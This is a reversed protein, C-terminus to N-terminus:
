LPSDLDAPPESSSWTPVPLQRDELFARITAIVLDHQETYASHGAGRVYVLEANPLAAALDTGFRWPLYDCQPKIVLAPADVRGLRPRLDPIVRRVANTYFGLSHPLSPDASAPDRADCYLGPYTLEYLRDFRADMEQDGAVSRAARPSVQTLLWAFLARPSLLRGYVAVQQGRTLRAVMGTGFDVPYPRIQGPAIAVFKDVRQPFSAAFAAAVTAGYSHAVLVARDIGLADLLASLDAVDRDLTYSAPDELRGSHGAGVQDYLILDRGTETLDRLLALDGSMDAVGPGGHLFVIPAPAEDAIRTAAIRVYAITSGTPLTAFRMGPVPEATTVSGGPRLVATAVIASVTAAAVFAAAKRSGAALGARATAIWVTAFLGVVLLLLGAGLVAYPSPALSATAMAAAAAVGIAVIGLALGLAIRAVVLLASRPSFGRPARAFLAM